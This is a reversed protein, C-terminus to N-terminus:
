ALKVKSKVVLKDVGATFVDTGAVLMATVGNGHVAITQEATHRSNKLGGVLLHQGDTAAYRHPTTCTEM